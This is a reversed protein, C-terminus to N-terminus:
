VPCANEGPPVPARGTAARIAALLATGRFPKVLYDSAGRQMAEARLGPVDHATIMIFPSSTGHSRLHALLDLGSM